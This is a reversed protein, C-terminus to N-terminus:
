LSAPAMAFERLTPYDLKGNPARGLTPVVVIRRPVKYGALSRKVHATLAGLDLTEHGVPQILACV